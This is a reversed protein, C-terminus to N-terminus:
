PTDLVHPLGLRWRVADIRKLSENEPPVWRQHITVPTGATGSADLIAQAARKGTECASEMTAVNMSNRVYDGALMLNGISTATGPRDDWSGPTNILLPEDNEAIREEGAREEPYSIAPDVWRSVLWSDDLRLGEDNLHARLQAWVEDCVQDSSLSWAPKGYVMGPASWDSIITSFSERARGDGYTAPIDRNWVQAQSISTLAFESDVYNVHGHSIPVQRDLHFVVGNM